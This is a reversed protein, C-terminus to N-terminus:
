LFDLRVFRPYYLTDDRVLEAFDFSNSAYTVVLDAGELEPHGKGAYVFPMARDSEEPRFVRAHGSWPGTIEPATAVAITTAGFGESRVHIWRDLDADFHLSSEPSADDLVRTPEGDLATADIWAGDQWWEAGGLDGSGIVTRPWRVLFGAHDGPERVALTVVHADEVIVAGGPVLGEPLDPPESITIPWGLPDGSTDEIVAVRSGDAEFGFGVGPTPRLITMFVVLTGDVVAGHLPWLWREGDEAFFSSPMTADERWHFTISATSPDLGEQIAISNRVLRSESRELADSTAVFSDGFLWLVRDGGLPVSYAADGGLWRPERHFLADAEPWARGVIEFDSPAAPDCAVLGTFAVLALRSRHRPAVCPAYGDRRCEATADRALSV